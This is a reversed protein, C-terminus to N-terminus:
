LNKRRDSEERFTVLVKRIMKKIKRIALCWLVFMSVHGRGCYLYTGMSGMPCQANKTEMDFTSENGAYYFNNSRINNTENEDVITTETSSHLMRCQHVKKDGNEVPGVTTFDTLTNTHTPIICRLVTARWQSM